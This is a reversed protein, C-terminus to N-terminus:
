PLPQGELFDAARLQLLLAREILLARGFSFMLLAALLPIVIMPELASCCDPQNFPESARSGLPVGVAQIALTHQAACGRRQGREELLQLIPRLQRLNKLPRLFHDPIPGPFM